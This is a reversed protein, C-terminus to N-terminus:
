WAVGLWIGLAWVGGVAAFLGVLALWQAPSLHALHSMRPATRGARGDGQPALQRPESAVPAVAGRISPAATGVEGLPAAATQTPAHRDTM